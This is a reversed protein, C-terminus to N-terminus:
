AEGSALAHLKTVTAWNRTTAGEKSAKLFRMALPSELLGRACWLYAARRGFAIRDPLWDTKKLDDFGKLDGPRRVFAVLLRAPDNAVDLLPNEDVIEALEGADLAIVACSVGLKKEIATEIRAAPDGRVSAPRTFVVNGSNLLTKVERYGLAEVVRKLDAMAIRKAKGVNVGRLLAIARAPASKM